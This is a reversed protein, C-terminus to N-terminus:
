ELMFLVPIKLLSSANVRFLCCFMIWSLTFFFLVLINYILQLVSHRNWRCSLYRLNWVHLELVNVWHTHFIWYVDNRYQNNKKRRWVTQVWRNRSDPIQVCESMKINKQELINLSHEHFKLQTKRLDYWSLGIHLATGYCLRNIAPNGGRRGPNSGLDHWTPNTTSLTDSSYTKESYKPKGQWDENWLSSWAWWRDDPAPVIPWNTASTGLPSLRV